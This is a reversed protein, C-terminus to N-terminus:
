LQAVPTEQGRHSSFPLYSLTVVPAGDDRGRRGQIKSAAHVTMPPPMPPTIPPSIFEGDAGAAWGEADAEGDAGAACGTASEHETVLTASLSRGDTTVMLALPLEPAPVPDPSIM